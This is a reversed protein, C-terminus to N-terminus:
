NFSINCGLQTAQKANTVQGTVTGEALEELTFNAITEEGDEITVTQQMTEYGYAGAEVTYDGVPLSLSYSGDAPNTIVSRGTEIVSVQARLPLTSPTNEIKQNVKAAPTQSTASLGVDDIYWGDRVVSGDSYGHFGVYVRQGSYASLDIEVDTWDNTLGQFKRLQTWNVQDTSIVVHGYDYATGSQRNNM